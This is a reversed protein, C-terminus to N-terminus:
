VVLTKTSGSEKLHQTLYRTNVDAKGWLKHELHVTLLYACSEPNVPETSHLLRQLRKVLSHPFFIRLALPPFLFLLPCLLFSRQLKTSSMFCFSLLSSPSYPLCVSCSPPNLFCSTLILWLLAPPPPPHPSLLLYLSTSSPSTCSISSPSHSVLEWKM